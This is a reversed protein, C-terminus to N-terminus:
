DELGLTPRVMNHLHVVQLLPLIILIFFISLGRHPKETGKEAHFASVECRPWPRPCTNAM